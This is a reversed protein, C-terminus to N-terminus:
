KTEAFADLTGVASATGTKLDIRFYGKPDVITGRINKSIIWPNGGRIIVEKSTMDYVMQRGSATLSEDNKKNPDKIKEVKLTGTAVMKSPKGFKAASFGEKKPPENTERSPQDGASPTEKKKPELFVKLEDAGRLTFEPHDIEVDTLFILVSAEPDFYFGDKCRINAPLKLQTLGHPSPVKRTLDPADTPDVDLAATALFDGLTKDAAKSQAVAQRLKEQTAANAADAKPKSSVALRNLGAIEAESLKEIGDAGLASTMLAAGAIATRLPPYTNMSTSSDNAILTTATAPGLVFGCRKSTDYVLGTGTASLDSSNLTVAQDSRLIGKSMRAKELDISAKPSRDPNYFEVRVALADIIKNSVLTLEKARLVSVLHNQEDYQPIIVKRLISGEVLM